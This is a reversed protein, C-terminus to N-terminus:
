VVDSFSIKGTDFPDLKEAYRQIQNAALGIRLSHLLTITQDTDIIGDSDTDQMKFLRVFNSLFRQHEAM